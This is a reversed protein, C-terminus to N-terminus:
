DSVPPVRLTVGGTHSRELLRLIDAYEANVPMRREPQHLLFAQNAGLMDGDRGRRFQLAKVAAVVARTDAGRSLSITARSPTGAYRTVMAAAGGPLEGGRVVRVTASFRRAAQRGQEQFANRAHTARREYLQTILVMVDANPHRIIITPSHLLRRLKPRYTPSELKLISDILEREAADSVTHSPMDSAHRMGPGTPDNEVDNCAIVLVAAALTLTTTRTM